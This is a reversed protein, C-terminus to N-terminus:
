ASPLEIRITTPLSSVPSRSFWIRPDLSAQVRPQYAYICEDAQHMELFVQFLGIYNLLNTVNEGRLFESFDVPNDVDDEGRGLANPLGFTWVFFFRIQRLSFISSPWFESRSREM